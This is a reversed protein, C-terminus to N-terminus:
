PRPSSAVLFIFGGCPWMSVGLRARSELSVATPCPQGWLPPPRQRMFPSAYPLQARACERSSIVAMLTGQGGRGPLAPLPRPSPTPGLPARGAPLPPCAHLGPHGHCCPRWETRALLSAPSHGEPPHHPVPTQPSQPSAGRDFAECVHGHSRAASFGDATCPRRGVHERIGAFLLVECPILRHRAWDVSPSM